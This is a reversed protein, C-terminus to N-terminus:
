EEKSKTFVDDDTAGQDEQVSELASDYEEAVDSEIENGGEFDGDDEDEDDEEDGGGAGIAAAGAEGAVNATSGGNNNKTDIKEKNDDNYSDDSIGHSRMFEDILQFYAQDIMSFEIPREEDRDNLVVVNLSFTHKTISTYSAKLVKSMGFVLIPKKFAFILYAPNHENQELFILNGDRAGKHCEVMIISPSTSNGSTIAIATDENVIFRNKFITNSPLYSILNIGCLKFQRKFYDIIREQIPNLVVDNKYSSVDFQNEIDAPLKGNKIMQKKIADLNLQCIVPDKSVNSDTYYSEHMWFCLLSVGKKQANTSNGLIPLIVCLKVAQRLNIFSIEPSDNAPNVISLIPVAQGNQEILHFTLNMRKRLPSAFSIQQIDFIVSDPHVSSSPELEEFASGATEEFGSEENDEEEQQQQQQGNSSHLKRRKNSDEVLFTYLDTFVQQSSPEKQITEHVREQLDRPIHSIWDM